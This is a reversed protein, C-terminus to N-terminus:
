VTFLTKINNYWNDYWNETRQLWGCQIFDLIQAEKEWSNTGKNRGSSFVIHLNWTSLRATKEGSDFVNPKM